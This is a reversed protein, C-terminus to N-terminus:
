WDPTSWGQPWGEWVLMDPIEDAIERWNSNGWSWHSFSAEALMSTMGAPVALFLERNTYGRESHSGNYESIKRAEEYGEPLTERRLAAEAAEVQKGAEAEAKQAEFRAERRTLRTNEATAYAESLAAINNTTM